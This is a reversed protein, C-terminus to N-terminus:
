RSVTFPRCRSRALSDAHRRYAAATKSTSDEHGTPERGGRARRADRRRPRRLGTEDRHRADGIEHGVTQRWLVRPRLGQALEAVDIVGPPVHAADVAAHLRRASPLAVHVIESSVERVRQPAQAGRRRKGERGHERHREADAGVGRDEGDDITDEQPRQWKVIGVAQKGHVRRVPRAPEQLRRHRRDIQVVPAGCRWDISSM